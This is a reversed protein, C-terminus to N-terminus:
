KAAEMPLQVRLRFGVSDSEWSLLGGLAQVREMMGKLGNGVAISKPQSGNDDVSLLFHSDDGTLRIECRSARSHRLVNTIAEQTCRLLTEAAEVNTIVPSQEFDVVVEIGPIGAVLKDVSGKLDLAEDDRLESVASRLDGLLLKAMALSQDVKDKADDSAKHSAVELNLILATMHHGLIDHLDRAIRLREGQATTQLLLQRTALLQRNLDATEVRLQRERIAMSMVAIAFLQFLGFMTANILANLLNLNEQHLTEKFVMLGISAILLYYAKRVGYLETVQVIWVITLIEVNANPVLLFLGTICLASTWLLGAQLRRKEAFDSVFLIFSALQGFLLLLILWRLPDGQTAYVTLGTIMLSVAIGSLNLVPEGRGARSPILEM